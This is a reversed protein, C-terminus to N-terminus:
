EKQRKEETKRIQQRKRVQGFKGLNARVQGFKGLNVKEGEKKM